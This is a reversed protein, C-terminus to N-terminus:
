LSDMIRLLKTGYDADAAWGKGYPNQPIALWEVYRATGRSVYQFRKDVCANNLGDTSAYAKLHQVQARLGTRVDAFTEGAAGGGVAGLGGFNCQSPQVDGGFKLGGTELMVQAFLVDARVGEAEAEEKLIKFFAEASDAGKDRYTDAPFTYRKNYYSVMQDVTVSSTGMIEHAAAKAKVASWPGYMRIGNSLDKYARVKYYYTTGQVLNSHTFSTAGSTQLTTYTGKESVAGALEYGSANAVSNWSINLVNNDGLTISSISGQKLVAVETVKSYSGRGASGKIKYTAAIKYYYTNGSKVGKDTYTLTSGSSISAIKEFGSNSEDSRYIDYGQAKSVKKWGLTVQNKSDSTIQSFVVQKITWAKQAKSFSAVGNKASNSKYARVQYYYTKGAELTKDEYKKTNKGKVQGVKKYGSDKSTSRYIQYGSAGDVAKWELRVSTSGTAKVATISTTKLTKASVAASNGSYGKKGNVKNITEVKYYYTKATKLKKDQYTTNNKGKLTAVVKYTGNKSTSRKIRYGYAGRVAGWNVEIQNSGNSVAYKIKAKKATRGEMSASDGSYCINDGTKVMTEVTYYYTKGAKVSTDKYSTTNGSKITKVVKYTGDEDTSRKIRYGYAGTIKNWKITLTKENTSVISTIKTRKATKGAVADSAGGYGKTGSNVNYAEVKYYYTKGAKVTDDTYSTTKEGSVTDIESYGSDKKTSRSIIYGKAGSVKNWSIKLVEENSSTIGTIKAKALTKASKTSSYAGVGQKGNNTNYAQIKYTYTKNNSKVTDTYTLTKGSTVKGIQNYKGDESDKRYILYGEAQSVKKWTLAVKKGSKAEIKTFNTKALAVGSISKSYEGTTGDNFVPRVLYYYRTGLEVTDDIFSTADSVEDIKEYDYADKTDRWIEYYDVNDLGSWKIKLSGDARSQTYTCTVTQAGKTLGFYEAIATADAVGLAKLKEDSSLYTYYDNANDLFAHEIILGPIGNNKCRRILGYYDAASGDPYKDYSANRIKTGRYNLGLAALKDCIKKALAQGNSGVQANYNSNPYYVEVGRATGNATNLHFSVLVNAGVNKALNARADLCAIYDGGGAPCSASERTMYVTIGNYTSLEEKCYTAIKLTLDAEQVGFGPAGAHTGDHGPDLVVKVNSNAGKLNDAVSAVADSIGQELVNEVTNESIVEGDASMTVVDADVDAYADEDYLVQDPNTEAQENVGFRVDMGLDSLLIEQKTKEQTFQVSTIQYEGAQGNESFDMTFRIMDEEIGATKTQYAKGTTLNKYNLVIDSLQEDGTGLSLVVNQTGPTEVYPSEVMMYNLEAAQVTETEATETETPEETETETTETETSEETETEATETETSETETTETEITETEAPKETESTETEAPKETESTETEAPEETEITETEITVTETTEETETMETGTLEEAANGANETQASKEAPSTKQTSETQVASDEAASVDAPLATMSVCVAMIVALIRKKM